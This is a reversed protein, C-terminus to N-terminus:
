ERIRVRVPRSLAVERSTDARAITEQFWEPTKPEGGNVMVIRALEVADTNRMRVCGHSRARGLSSPLATGHIYLDPERFFMKVRGMPNGPSGPPEPKHDRAWDSPPPRWSPNWIMHSIRYTGPPTAYGEQGVSVPWQRKVEGESVLYLMRDSLDVILSMNPYREVPAAIAAEPTSLILGTDRPAAQGRLEPPAALSAAALALAWITHRM